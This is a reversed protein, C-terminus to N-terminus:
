PLSVELRKGPMVRVERISDVVTAERGVAVSTPRSFCSVELSKAFPAVISNNYMVPFIEGNSGYARVYGITSALPLHEIRAGCRVELYPHTWNESWSPSVWPSVQSIAGGRVEVDFRWRDASVPAFSVTANTSCYPLRMPCENWHFRARGDPLLRADEPLSTILPDETGESSFYGESTDHFFRPLLGGPRKWYPVVLFFGPLLSERGVVLEKSQLAVRVDEDIRQRLLWGKIDIDDSKEFAVIYGDPVPGGKRVAKVEALALDYAPRPDEEVPHNVFYIRRIAEDYSWGTERVVRVWLKKWDFYSMTKAPAQEPLTLVMGKDMLARQSRHVGVSLVLALVVARRQEGSLKVIMVLLLLPGCFWLLDEMTGDYLFAVAAAAAELIMAASLLGNLRRLARGSGLVEEFRFAALYLVPLLVPLVYRYGIPAVLNYAFPVFGWIACARLPWRSLATPRESGAGTDLRRVAMFLFVLPLPFFGAARLLTLSAQLPTALSTIAFSLMIPLADGADGVPLGPSQTAGSGGLFGWKWAFYPISPLVFLALGVGLERVRQEWPVPRSMMLYLMPLLWVVLSLHLQIGVGLLFCAAWICRRRTASDKAWVSECLCILTAQAFFIQFSVNLFSKLLLAIGYASAFIGLWFWAATASLRRRLHWWGALAAASALAIMLIWASTWSRHVALAAALLYYYFPGFLNGGGTMEPGFFIGHGALLQLGRHIDRSQFVLFTTRALIRTVGLELVFFLLPAALFGARRWRSHWKSRLDPSSMFRDLGREQAWSFLRWDM